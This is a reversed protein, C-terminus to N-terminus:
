EAFKFSKENAKWWAKWAPGDEFAQGTLAKLAFNCEDRIKEKEKSDAGSHPIRPRLKRHRGEADPYARRGGERSRVEVCLPGPAGAPQAEVM